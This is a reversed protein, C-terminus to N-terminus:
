LEQGCCVKQDLKIMEQQVDILKESVSSNMVPLLASLKRIALWLETTNSRQNECEGSRIYVQKPRETPFEEEVAHLKTKVSELDSTVKKVNALESTVETKLKALEATVSTEKLSSVNQKLDQVNKSLEAYAANSVVPAKREKLLPINQRNRWFLRLASTWSHRVVDVLDACAISRVYLVCCFLVVRDCAHYRGSSSLNEEPCSVLKPSHSGAPSTKGNQFLSSSNYLEDEPIGDLGEQCENAALHDIISTETGENNNNFHEKDKELRLSDSLETEGESTSPFLPEPSVRAGNLFAM